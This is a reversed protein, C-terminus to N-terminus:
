VSLFATKGSVISQMGQLKWWDAMFWSSMKGEMPTPCIGPGRRPTLPRETSDKNKRCVRRKTTRKTTKPM